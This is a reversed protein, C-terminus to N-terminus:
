TRPRERFRRRMNDFPNASPPVSGLPHGESMTITRSEAARAAHGPPVSRASRDATSMFAAESRCSIAVSFRPESAFGSVTLRRLTRTSTTCPGSRPATTSSPSLGSSMPRAGAHPSTSVSPLTLQICASSDSTSPPTCIRLRPERLPTCTPAASRRPRARRAPCSCGRRGCPATAPARGLGLRLHRVRRHRAEAPQLAAREGHLHHEAAQLLKAAASAGTRISPGVPVPLSTAARASCSWESRLSPGNSITSQPAMGRWRMSASSNPTARPAYVPASEDRGPMKSRAAPPVTTSSSIASSGISSCGLSSPTISRPWIRRSPSDCARGIEARTTAVVLRTSARSTCAPRKRWSRYKRRVTSRTAIGGSRSRRSSM